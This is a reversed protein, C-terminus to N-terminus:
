LYIWSECVNEFDQALLVTEANNGDLMIWCVQCACIFNSGYFQCSQLVSTLCWLKLQATSVPTVFSKISSLSKFGRFCGRFQDLHAGLARKTICVANHLNFINQRKWLFIIPIVCNRNNRHFSIPSKKHSQQTITEPPILKRFIGYDSKPNLKCESELLERFGIM